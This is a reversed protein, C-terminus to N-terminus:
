KHGRKPRCTSVVQGAFAAAFPSRPAVIGPVTIPGGFGRAGRGMCLPAKINYSSVAISSPSRTKRRGFRCAEEGRASFRLPPRGDINGDPECSLEAGRKGRVDCRRRVRPAPMRAAPDRAPASTMVSRRASPASPRAQARRRNRKVRASPLKRSAPDRRRRNTAVDAAAEALSGPRQVRLPTPSPRALGGFTSCRAGDNQGVAGRDHHGVLEAQELLM